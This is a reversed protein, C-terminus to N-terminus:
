NFPNHLSFPSKRPMSPMAVVSKRPCPEHASRKQCIKERACAGAEENCNTSPVVSHVESNAEMIKAECAKAM